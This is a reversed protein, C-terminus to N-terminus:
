KSVCFNFTASVKPPEVPGLKKHDRSRGSNRQISFIFRVKHFGSENHMMKMQNKSVHSIFAHNQQNQHMFHSECCFDAMEVYFKSGWLRCTNRKILKSKMTIM